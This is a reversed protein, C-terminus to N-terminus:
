IMVGLSGVGDSVKMKLERVETVDRSWQSPLDRFPFHGPVPIRLTRIVVSTPLTVGKRPIERHSNM